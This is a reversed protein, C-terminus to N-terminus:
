REWKYHNSPFKKWMRNRFYIAHSLALAEAKSREEIKLIKMFASISFLKSAVTCRKGQIRREIVVQWGDTKLKGKPHIRKICVLSSNYNVPM